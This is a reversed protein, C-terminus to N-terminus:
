KGGKNSRYWDRKEERGEGSCSGADLKVGGGINRHQREVSGGSQRMPMPMPPKPGMMPPAGMGRKAAIAQAVAPPIRKQVPRAMGMAAGGMQKGEFKSAEDGYRKAKAVSDVGLGAGAGTLLHGIGKAIKGGGPIRNAMAVVGATGLENVADKAAGSAKGRLYKGQEKEDLEGAAGGDQKHVKGGHAFKGLNAIRGGNKFPPRPPPMGMPPPGGMPPAGMPPPGAGMPPPPPAAMPPPPLPHPVAAAGADPKALTINITTNAPGRSKKDLRPAAGSGAMDLGELAGGVQKHIRGGFARKTRGGCQMMDESRSAMDGKAGYSKLKAQRMSKAKSMIDKMSM